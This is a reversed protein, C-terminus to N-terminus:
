QGHPRFPRFGAELAAGKPIPSRCSAMGTEDGRRLCPDLRLQAMAGADRASLDTPGRGSAVDGVNRLDIIDAIFDIHLVIPEKDNCYGSQQRANNVVM